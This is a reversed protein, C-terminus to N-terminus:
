DMSIHPLMARVQQVEDPPMPGDDGFEDLGTLRALAPMAAAFRFMPATLDEREVHLHRLKPLRRLQQLGYETYSGGLLTLSELDPLDAIASLADDNLRLSPGDEPGYNGALSLRGLATLEAIVSPADAGVDDIYVSLDRLGPALHALAAFSAPVVDGLSLDSVSDAPLGRIFQLDVPEEGAGASYGGKGPEGWIGRTNRLASDPRGRRWTVREKAPGLRGAPPRATGVPAMWGGAWSSVTVEAVTFVSLRVETGDPVEVVGIALLHGWGGPERADEWWVEGVAIDAPFRLATVKFEKGARLSCSRERHSWCQAM